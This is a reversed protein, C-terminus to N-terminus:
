DLRHRGRNKDILALGALESLTADISQGFCCNIHFDNQLDDERNQDRIKYRSKQMPKLVSISVLIPGNRALEDGFRVDHMMMVRPIEGPVTPKM